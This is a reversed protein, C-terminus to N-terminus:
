ISIGDLINELRCQECGSPEGYEDVLEGSEVWWGCFPCSEVGHDLLYEEAEEVSIILDLRDLLIDLTSCSGLVEDILRDM